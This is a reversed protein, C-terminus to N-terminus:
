SIIQNQVIRNEQGDNVSVTLTFIAKDRFSWTAPMDLDSLHITKMGAHQADWTEDATTKGSESERAWNWYQAAVDDTIEVTGYFLHAMIDTDVFGKRFSYGKSPVFEISLNGNGDTLRWYASKWRPENYTYVDGSKVPQNQLCLWTGNTHRVRHTEYRKTLANYGNNFYIGHGIYLSDSKGYESAPIPFTLTYDVYRGQQANWVQIVLPETRNGDVWDGCDVVEPIPLGERDIKIYNGVVVGQAYLWDTHEGVEALVEQVKRYQKVFEPLEGITVGYNGNALMPHDVGTFKTVRGDSASIEFFRQRRIISQKVTEYDPDSPDSYDVCGRRAIVMMPCPEFNRGAPVDNDGYLVV